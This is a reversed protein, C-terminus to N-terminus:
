LRGCGSLSKFLKKRKKKKLLECEINFFFNAISLNVKQYVPGHFNILIAHYLVIEM